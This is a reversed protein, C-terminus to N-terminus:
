EPPRPTTLFLFGEDNAYLLYKTEFADLYGVLLDSKFVAVGGAEVVPEEDNQIVHVSPLTIEKGEGHFYNYIQYLELNRTSASYKNDNEIIQKIEKSVISKDIGYISLMRKATKERSVAVTMTERCEADRYFLDIISKVGEVRAIEESIVIVDAHGIYLKNIVRRKANRFADFITDGDCEILKAKIGSQKPNTLLDVVECSLHYGTDNENKDIAVGSVITIQNLGRYNWCSGFMLSVSVSLLVAVIKKLM